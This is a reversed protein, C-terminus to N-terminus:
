LFHHTHLSIFLFWLCSQREARCCALGGKAHGVSKQTKDSIFYKNSFVVCVKLEALPNTEYLLNMSRHAISMEDIEKNCISTAMDEVVLFVGAINWLCAKKRLLCVAELAMRDHRGIESRSTLSRPM